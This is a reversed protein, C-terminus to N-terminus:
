NGLVKEPLRGPKVWELETAGNFGTWRVPLPEGSATLLCDLGFYFEVSCARGNIDYRTDGTPGLTPYDKVYDLDPLKCVKFRGPLPASSLTKVAERGAADNDVMAIVRNMIGAAAFARLNKVLQATGGAAKADPDLFTFYGALEPAVIKLGRKLFRADTTGETLVIIPGISGIESALEQLALESVADHRAFYGASLLDHLDLRVVTDPAQGELLAALLTRPDEFAEERLLELAHLCAEELSTLPEKVESPKSSAILARLGIEVVQECDIVHRVPEAGRPGRSYIADDGDIERIKQLFDRMDAKCRQSTFGMLNLRKVVTDVTATYGFASSIDRDAIGEAHEKWGPAGEYAEPWGGIWEAAEANLDPLDGANAADVESAWKEDMYRDHEQFITMLKIPIHNKGDSIEDEGLFLSWRDGM